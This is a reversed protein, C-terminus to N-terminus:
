PLRSMLDARQTTLLTAPKWSTLQQHGNHERPRRRDIEGEPALRRREGDAPPPASAALRGTRGGPTTRDPDPSPPSRRAAAAAQQEATQSGGFPTSRCWADLCNQPVFGPRKRCARAVGLDGVGRIRSRAEGRSHPRGPRAVRDAAGGGPWRGLATRRLGDLALHGSRARTRGSRRWAGRGARIASRPVASSWAWSARRGRARWRPMSHRGSSWGRRRRGASARVTRRRARRALRFSRTVPHSAQRRAHGAGSPPTLEARRAQARSAGGASRQDPRCAGQRFGADEVAALRAEKRSGLRSVIGSRSSGRSRTLGGRSSQRSPGAPSVALVERGAATRERLEKIERRHRSHRAVRGERRGGLHPGRLVDGDPTAVLASTRRSFAVADDFTLGRLRGAARAPDHRTRGTVRM